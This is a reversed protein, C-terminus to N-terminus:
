ALSRESFEMRLAMRAPCTKMSTSPVGLRARSNVASMFCDPATVVIIPSVMEGRGLWGTWKM